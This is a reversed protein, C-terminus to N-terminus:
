VAVVITSPIPISYQSIAPFLLGVFFVAGALASVTRPRELPAFLIQAGAVLAFFVSTFAIGTQPLELLRLLTLLMTWIAFAVLITTLDFKRTLSYMRTGIGLNRFRRRQSTESELRVDLFIWTPPGEKLLRLTLDLRPSNELLRKAGRM